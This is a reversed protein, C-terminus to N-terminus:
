PNIGCIMLYFTGYEPRDTSSRANFHRREANQRVSCFALTEKQFSTMALTCWVNMMKFLLVLDLYEHWFSLPLLKSEKLRNKCNTQCDYPLNLIFKSARRQVREARKILEITQPAWIQTAYGLHPRVIALFLCRRTRPNRIEKCSRKIFGLLKNAKSSQEVVQKNWTLDSSIWVGLDKEQKVAGLQSGIMTYPYNAPTKGDSHDM